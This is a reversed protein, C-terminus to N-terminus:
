SMFEVLYFSLFWKSSLPIHPTTDIIEIKWFIKEFDGHITNNHTHQFLSCQYLIWIKHGKNKAKIYNTSSWQKLPIEGNLIVSFVFKPCQNNWPFHFCTHRKKSKNEGFIWLLLCIWNQSAIWNGTPSAYRYYHQTSPLCFGQDNCRTLHFLTERKASRPAWNVIGLGM